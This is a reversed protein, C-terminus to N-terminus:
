LNNKIITLLDAFTFPKAIYDTCGAEICKEREGFLAFATQAIVPIDKNFTRIEKTAQYGDIGPMKMDMLILDIDSNKAQYIAEQGNKAWIVKTGTKNLAAQIFRYNSEEDEVVLIVKDNWFPDKFINDKEMSKSKVNEIVPLTFYFTTGKGVESELWIEGGLMQVLGNTIALGIGAGRYVQENTDGVRGFLSFIEEYKEKPIGIGTDRVFFEIENGVLEFGFDISGMDTYKMANDILNSLIQRLRQQDTLIIYSGSYTKVNLKLHGKNKRLKTDNYMAYLDILLENVNVPEINLQVDGTEIRSVDIIDDILHLLSDCSSHIQSIASKKDEDTIDEYDLLSSFGIIANMPTRIEHSMNKLFSTKLNDSEEAKLKAMELDKTRESVQEELYVKHKELERKQAQIEENQQSIEENKDKLEATKLDVAKQLQFKQLRIQRIKLHYFGYILFALMLFFLIRFITKTWFPPNVILKLTTPTNNWVNDNNAAKVKFVYEGGPLNTYTAFRRDSGTFNWKSDFGELMYAYKNKDPQKFNLASFEFSVMNDRYDLFLTDTLFLPESLLIRGRKDPQGPRIQKNSVFLKTLFVEPLFTNIVIKDPEILDFGNKGGFIMNGNSLKVAAGISYESNILGDGKDYFSIKETVPNFKMLGKHSGLWLFDKEDELISTIYNSSLGDKITYQQFVEKERDFLNLGGGGTGIWLQNLKNEFICFVDNNSLCTTDGFSYQFRRFKGSKRDLLQLGGGMTGIWFNGSGDEYVSRVINSGISNEDEPKHFFIKIESTKQNFKVLGYGWTGIWIIDSNDKYIQYVAYNGIDNLLDLGELQTFTYQKTNFVLVGTVETGILLNHDDLPYIDYIVNQFSTSNKLNPIDFHKMQNIGPIFMNLGGGRTGLWVRGQNDQFLARIRNNTLSYPDEPEHYYSKYYSPNISLKMIGKGDTGIWIIGQSDQILSLVVDNQLKKPEKKFLFQSTEPDLCKIGSGRTSFLLLDKCQCVSTIINAANTQQKRNVPYIFRRIKKNLNFGPIEEHPILNLGKGYTGAWLNKEKDIYLHRIINGSLSNKNQPNHYFRYFRNQERDFKNLGNETGIWIDHFSDEVISYVINHSLSFPNNKHKYTITQGRDKTIRNLGGGETGIWVDDNHDVCVCRVSNHSITNSSNSNHLYNIFDDRDYRYKNLGFNTAVWINGNKDADIDWVQNNSITTTDNIDHRYITFNYGDYRNLGDFTGFWLFGYKDQYICNVSNQSLGQETDIATYHYTNNQATVEFGPSLSVFVCSFKLFGSFFCLFFLLLIKFKMPSVPLINM